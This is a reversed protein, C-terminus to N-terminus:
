ALPHPNKNIEEPTTRKNKLGINQAFEYLRNGGLRINKTGFHIPQFDAIIVRATFLGLQEMDPSTLNYYIFNREEKKFFDTLIEFQETATKETDNGWDMVSFPLKFLFDFAAIKDKVSYLLDHDELEEVNMPDKLLHALRAQTEPIRIRQKFAPRVQGVELLAQRAAKAANFDAGLGVVIQPGSGEAQVGIGLFVRMPTDTPLEFLRMNVGRRKYAMCLNKVEISPHLFPDYRKCPLENHWTIVFADREIVEGAASLVADMMSAGAALGNSTAQCLYEKDNKLNYNLITSHAPVYVPKNHVLSFAKVWGIEQQPDFPSFIIDKYQDPLYLVLHKPHLAEEKIADYSSFLIDNSTYITSSYREVAEGAASIKARTENMGKGSCNLKNHKDNKLFNHNSLEAMYVLPLTPETIDKPINELNKIIGTHKSVLTKLLAGLDSPQHLKILEHAPYHIREHKKKVCVPCDPKQLFSHLENKFSLTDFVNIKNILSLHSFSFFFKLVEASIIAAVINIAAPLLSRSGLSPTKQTNLYEEYLMAEEFDEKTAVNRMKYCMYCATKGPVVLPGTFCIHGKIAAYLAPINKSICLENIWYNITSFGKDFCVIILHCDSMFDEINEKTLEPPGTEINVGPMKQLFYDQVADQRTAKEKKLFPFISLINEDTKFPDALKFKKFGAQGLALITQIGHADLGAIGIKYQSINQLAAQADMGTTELFNSFFTAAGGTNKESYPLPMCLLVGAKVLQNLNSTLDDAAINKVKAAITEVDNEGNLLPLINKVLFETSAGELKISLTDSKFLFNGDKMDIVAIDPALIYFSKM